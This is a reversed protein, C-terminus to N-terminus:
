QRSPRAGLTRFLLQPDDSILGDVGWDALEKMRHQSNVTWTMFQQGNRHVHEILPPRVLDYRPLCVRIPLERWRDMLDGRECIYGLPIRDHADHMRRLTEPLFSSVIYGRQPPNRELAAVIREENGSEKLEIDLYARKGFQQLVDEVCPLCIGERATLQAYDTAAIERGNFKPDHWLVDRGDRTYRVDFEFGDCGQSLAFEFAALSNEAPARFTLRRLGRPRVGRHGLLLPRSTTNSVSGPV